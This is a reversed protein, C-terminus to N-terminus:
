SLLEQLIRNLVPRGKATARLTDGNKELYEQSILDTIANVALDQGAIQRYRDMSMGEVLRLCMLAYEAGADAHSLEATEKLGNGRANVAQLWAEPQAWAVTEVRQGDRLLRGHAGPGVGLYPGYRWYTLNHRCEAGSRAHNSVEYAPFGAADCMQQTLDYMDAGLGEDPLGRLKGRDYLDGFRTGPEITLQYLSLHDVAMGLARGLEQEWDRLSQGQRAYILDFSVREFANRAEDFAAMAESATHMRGLAKLDPDNLAQVGMSVRNVGAARYGAFREAEVSTPNAELTVELQNSVPWLRHVEDILAGVVSPEMLSPTGGGFFVSTVIRRETTEAQYRLDSLLAEQWVSQDVATRVHSNFDCYPCKAACFPWHIYIGFGPDRDM